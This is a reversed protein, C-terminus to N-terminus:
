FELLEDSQNSPRWIGVNVSEILWFFTENLLATLSYLCTIPAFCVVCFNGDSMFEVIPMMKWTQGEDGFVVSRMDKDTIKAVMFHADLNKNEMSPVVKSWIIQDKSIDLSLEEKVERAVCEFPGEKGDRAGGPFDWMNPFSITPKDDRLIVLVENDKILAIKVGVFDKM